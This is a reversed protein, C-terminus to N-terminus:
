RSRAPTALGPGAPGPTSRLSQVEGPQRDPEKKQESVEGNQRGDANSRVNPNPRFPSILDSTPVLGQNVGEFVNTLTNGLARPQRNKPNQSKATRLIMDISDPTIESNEGLMEASQSFANMRIAASNEDKGRFHTGIVGALESFEEPQRLPNKEMASIASDFGEAVRQGRNPDDPSALSGVSQALQGLREPKLDPRKAMLRSASAFMDLAAGASGSGPASGGDQKDGMGAARSFSEMMRNMDAPKLDPRERMLEFGMETAWKGMLPDRFLRSFSERMTTVEQPSVDPREKLFDMTEGSKYSPDISVRGNIDKSVFDSVKLDPRQEMLDIISDLAIPNGLLPAVDGLTLDGQLNALSDLTSSAGLQSREDSSLESLTKTLLNSVGDETRGQSGLSPSGNSPQPAVSTRAPNQAALRPRQSVNM